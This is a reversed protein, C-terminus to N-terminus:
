HGANLHDVIYGKDIAEQRSHMVDYKIIHLM